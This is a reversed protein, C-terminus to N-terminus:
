GLISFSIAMVIVVCSVLESKEFTRQRAQSVVKLRNRM